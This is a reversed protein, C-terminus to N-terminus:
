NESIGMQTVLEERERSIVPGVQKEGKKAVVKEVLPVTTVDTESLNFIQHPKFHYRELVNFFWNLSAMKNIKWSQPTKISNRM